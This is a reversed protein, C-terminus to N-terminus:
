PEQQKHKRQREQEELKQKERQKERQYAPGIAHQAIHRTTDLAPNLRPLM